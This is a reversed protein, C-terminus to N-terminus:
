EKKRFLFFMPEFLLRFSRKRVTGVAISEQVQEKTIPKTNVVDNKATRAQQQLEFLLKKEKKNNDDNDIVVQFCQDLRDTTFQNSDVDWYALLQWKNDSVFATRADSHADNVLLYGNNNNNSKVYPTCPGVMAGASLSILLDYENRHIKPMIKNGINVNYCYFQYHPDDMDYLKHTEVYERAVPDSYLPAVKSDYDVFTIDAFVLAATLHRHCGPYLVKIPGNNNNSNGSSAATARDCVIWRLAEQFVALHMDHTAGGQYSKKYLNLQKSTSPASREKTSLWNRKSMALLLSFSLPRTLVRATTHFLFHERQQQLQTTAFIYGGDM